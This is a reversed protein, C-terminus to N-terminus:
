QEPAFIRWAQSPHGLAWWLSAIGLPVSPPLISGQVKVTEPEDPQGGQGTGTLPAKLEDASVLKRIDPPTLDLRPRAPADTASSRRICQMTLRFCVLPAADTAQHEAATENPGAAAAPLDDAWASSLTTGLAGLILLSFLQRVTCGVDNHFRWTTLLTV